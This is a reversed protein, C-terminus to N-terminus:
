ATVTGVLWSAASAPTSLYFSIRQITGDRDYATASVPNAFPKFNVNGIQAATTPGSYPGVLVNFSQTATTGDTPDTATVTITATEGAKAQTTDLIVVGDPSTSSLSASSITLPDVPQSDEGTVPNPQVPISAIQALGVAPDSLM